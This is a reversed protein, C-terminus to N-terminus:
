NKVLLIDGWPNTMEYIVGNTDKVLLAVEYTGAALDAVPIKINEFRQAAPSGLAIKLEPEDKWFDASFVLEGDDIQYGFQDITVGTPNAWGRFSVADLGDIVITHDNENLYKHAEQTCLDTMADGVWTRVNDACVSMTGPNGYVPETPEGDPANTEPEDTEPADTEPANTEPAATTEPAPVTTDVPAATDTMDLNLRNMFYNQAEEVSRFWGMYCVDWEAVTADEIDTVSFSPRVNHIRGDQALMAEDIVTTLDVVVLSYEDAGEEILLCGPDFVNWSLSYTDRSVLIDGASYYLGGNDGWFNKMAMCFVPFDSISYTM